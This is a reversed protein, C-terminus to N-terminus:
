LPSPWAPWGRKQRFSGSSLAQQQREVIHKIMQEERSRKKKPARSAVPQPLARGDLQGDLNSAQRTSTFFDTSVFSPVSYYLINDIVSSVVRSLSRREFISRCGGAPRVAHIRSHTCSEDASQGPWRRVFSPKALAQQTAYVTRRLRTGAPITPRDLWAPALEDDGRRLRRYERSISSPARQLAQSDRAM